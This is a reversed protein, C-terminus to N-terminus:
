DSATESVASGAPKIHLLAGVYVGLLVLTVGILFAGSVPERALWAAVVITVFPMLVFQYSTASATWRKLIYLYLIFVLCTGMLVLYVLALWMQPQTPMAHPEGWILSMGFLILTGVAIGLANTMIPHSRPFIKIIVASEAICAVSILVALISVIPVNAGLSDRFVVLIGGLALLGGALVQWRFSEQRHIIAFAFTLLPVLSLLVSALGAPVEQLGWYIFAYSAGFSLVGYLLIGVLARGRPLPLHMAAGIIFLLIAAVSFRLTAGWFPPLEQVTYRVGIANLGGFITIVVFAALTLNNQKSEEM